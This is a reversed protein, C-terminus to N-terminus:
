GVKKEEKKSHKEKKERKRKEKRHKKEKKKDKKSHKKEGDGEENDSSGESGSSDDGEDDSIAHSQKSLGPGHKLKREREMDLQARYEIMKRAEGGVLDLKSENDKKYQEWTPRNANDALRDSLTRSELGAAMRKFADFTSTVPGSSSSSGSTTQSRYSQERIFRKDSAPRDVVLDYNVLGGKPGELERMEKARDRKTTKKKDESM